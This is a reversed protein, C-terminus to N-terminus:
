FDDSIDLFDLMELQEGAEGMNEPCLNPWDIEVNGFGFDVVYDTQIGGPNPAVAKLGKVRAKIKM